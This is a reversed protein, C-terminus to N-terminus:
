QRFAMVFDKIAITRLFGDWSRQFTEQVTSIVVLEAKVMLFLFNDSPKMVTSYPPQAFTKINVAAFSATLILDNDKVFVRGAAAMDPRIKMLAKGFRGLATRICSANVTAL